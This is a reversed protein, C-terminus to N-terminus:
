STANGCVTTDPKGNTPPGQTCAIAMVEISERSLIAPKQYAKRPSSSNAPESRKGSPDQSRNM